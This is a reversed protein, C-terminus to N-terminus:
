IGGGQTEIVKAQTKIQKELEAVRELLSKVVDHQNNHAEKLAGTMKDLTKVQELLSKVVDHQNNHAEKLASIMKDQAQCQKELSAIRKEADAM